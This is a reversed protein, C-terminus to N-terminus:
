KIFGKDLGFKRYRELIVKTIDYDSNYRLFDVPLGLYNIFEEYRDQPLDFLGSEVYYDFLERYVRRREDDQIQQRLKAKEQSRSSLLEYLAGIPNTFSMPEAQLEKPIQGLKKREEAIDNLDKKPKVIVPRSPGYTLRTFSFVPSYESQTTSDIMSFRTTQYGPLFLFLTDTKECTLTFRGYGDTMYSINSKPHIVSVGSIPRKDLNDIVKGSIKVLATQSFANLCLLLAICFPFLLKLFKMSIIRIYDHWIIQLTLFLYHM